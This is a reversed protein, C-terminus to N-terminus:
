FRKTLTVEVDPYAKDTNSYGHSWKNNSCDHEDDSNLWFEKLRYEVESAEIDLLNYKFVFVLIM